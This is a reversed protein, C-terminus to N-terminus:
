LEYEKVECNKQGCTNLILGDEPLPEFYYKITRAVAGHTVLLINKDSYKEKVDNIGIENIDEDLRCNYKNEKNCKTQGHRIVYLKM